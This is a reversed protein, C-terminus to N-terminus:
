EEKPTDEVTPLPESAGTRTRTTAPIEEESASTSQTLHSHLSPEHTLTPSGPSLEALKQEEPIDIFRKALGEYNRCYNCVGEADFSIGGATTDYVCKTCIQNHM